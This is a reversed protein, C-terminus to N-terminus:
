FTSQTIDFIIFRYCWYCCWSTLTIYYSPRPPSNPSMIDAVVIHNLTGLISGFFAQRDLLLEESSLQGGAEYLKTNMRENYSAMLRVHDCLQM